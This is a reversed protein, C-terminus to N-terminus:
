RKKRLRLACSIISFYPTKRLSSHKHKPEKIFLLFRLNRESVADRCFRQRCRTCRLPRSGCLRTHRECSEATDACAIHLGGVERAALQRCLTQALKVIHRTARRDHETEDRGIEGHRLNRTRYLRCRRGINLDQEDGRAPLQRMRRPRAGVIHVRLVPACLHQQLDVALAHDCLGVHHRNGQVVLVYPATRHLQGRILANLFDALPNVCLANREGHAKVVGKGKDIYVAHRRALREHQLCEIVTLEQGAGVDAAARATCEIEGVGIDVIPFLHKLIVSDHKDNTKGVVIAVGNELRLRCLRRPILPRDDARIRCEARHLRNGVRLSMGHGKGIHQHLMQTHRIYRCKFLCERAIGEGRM